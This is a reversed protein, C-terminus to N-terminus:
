SGFVKSMAFLRQGLGSLGSAHLKGGPELQHHSLSDKERLVSSAKSSVAYMKFISRSAHVYITHCLSVSGAQMFKLPGWITGHM